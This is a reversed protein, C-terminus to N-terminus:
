DDELRAVLDFQKFRFGSETLKHEFDSIIQKILTNDKLLYSLKHGGPVFSFYEGTDGSVLISNVGRSILGEEYKEALFARIRKVEKLAEDRAAWMADDWSKIDREKMVGKIFDPDSPNPYFVKYYVVAM